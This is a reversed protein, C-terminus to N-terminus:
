KYKLIEGPKFFLHVVKKSFKHPNRGVYVSICINAVWVAFLLGFVLMIKKFDKQYYEFYDEPTTYIVGNEDEAYEVRYKNIGDEVFTEYGIKIEEKNDLLAFFDATDSLTEKYGELYPETDFGAVNLNLYEEDISYNEVTVTIFALDEKATPKNLIFLVVLFSAFLVTFIVYVTILAAPHKVNGNFVADCKSKKDSIPISKGSNLAKYRKQAFALFETKGIAIEDIHVTKNRVKLKIDSAMDGRIYEIDAYSFRRKVGLFTKSTFGDEDYYIRQNCYGLIMTSCLLAFASFGIGVVIEKECFSIITPILVFGTCGVGIILMLMPLHVTKGDGDKQKHLQKDVAKVVTNSIFKSLFNM